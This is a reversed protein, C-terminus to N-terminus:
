RRVLPLRHSEWRQWCWWVGYGVLAAGGVVRLGTVWAQGEGEKKGEGDVRRRIDDQAQQIRDIRQQLRQQVDKWQQQDHLCRHTLLPLLVTMEDVCAAWKQATSTPVSLSSTLSSLSASVSALTPEADAAPSSHSATPQQKSAPPPTTPLLIASAAAASTSLRAAPAEKHEDHACAKSGGEESEAGKGEPEWAHSVTSRRQNDQLARSLEPRNMEQVFRDRWQLQQASLRSFDFQAVDEDIRELYERMAQERGKGRQRDWAIWMYRRVPAFLSPCPLTNDGLTAQKYRGYFFLRDKSTPTIPLVISQDRFWRVAVDFQRRLEADSAM